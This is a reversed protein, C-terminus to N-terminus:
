TESLTLTTGTGDEAVCVEGEFGDIAEGPGVRDMELSLHTLVVQRVGARETLSGRFTM